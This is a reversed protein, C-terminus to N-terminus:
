AGFQKFQTTRGEPTFYVVSAFARFLTPCLIHHVPTALSEGYILWGDIFHHSTLSM